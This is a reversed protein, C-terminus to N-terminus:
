LSCSSRIDGKITHIDNTRLSAAFHELLEEPIEETSYERALLPEGYIIPEEPNFYYYKLLKQSDKFSQHLELPSNVKTGIVAVMDIM